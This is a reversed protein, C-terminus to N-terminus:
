GRSRPQPRTLEENLLELLRPPYTWEGGRGRWRRRSRRSLKLGPPVHRREVMMIILRRINFNRWYRDDVAALKNWITHAM